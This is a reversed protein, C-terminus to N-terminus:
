SVSVFAPLPRATMPVAAPAAPAAPAATAAPAKQSAPSTPLLPLHHPYYTWAVFIAAFLVASLMALGLAVAARPEYGRTVRLLVLVALPWLLYFQEEVALSWLNMFLTPTTAAFYDSGAALELWNSTFTFAGLVQRGIGVLSRM